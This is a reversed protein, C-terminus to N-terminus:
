RFSSVPRAAIGAAFRLFWFTGAANDGRVGSKRATSADIFL